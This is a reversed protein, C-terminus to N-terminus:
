NTDKIKQRVELRAFVNKGSEEVFEVISRTAALIADVREKAYEGSTTGQEGHILKHRLPMAQGELYQWDPVVDQLPKNHQPTVQDEWAKKYKWLGSAKHLDTERIDLNPDEGLLLIARRITWEFDAAALLVAIAPEDTLFQRIKAQRSELTDSVLFM